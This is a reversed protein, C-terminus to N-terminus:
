ALAFGICIFPWQVLIEFDFVLSTHQDLPLANIPCPIACRCLVTPKRLKAYAASCEIDSHFCRLPQAALGNFNGFYWPQCNALEIAFYVPPKTKVKPACGNPLAQGDIGETPPSGM